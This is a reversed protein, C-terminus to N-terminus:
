QAVISWLPSEKHTHAHSVCKGDCYKILTRHLNPVTGQTRAKLPCLYKPSLPEAQGSQLLQPAPLMLPQLPYSHVATTILPPPRRRRGPAPQTPVLPTSAAALARTIWRRQPPPMQAPISTEPSKLLCCHSPQPGFRPHPRLQPQPAANEDATLLCFVHSCPIQPSSYRRHPAQRFDDPAVPDDGRVPM